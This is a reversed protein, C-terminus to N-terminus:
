GGNNINMIVYANASPCLMETGEKQEGGGANPNFLYIFVSITKNMNTGKPFLFLSQLHWIYLFM